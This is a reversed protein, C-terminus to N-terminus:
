PGYTQALYDILVAKEEDNLEAGYGVMRTVTDDWQEQTYQAAEVQRLSHCVTCREQLLAEAEISVADEAPEETPAETPAETPEAPPETAAEVAAETPAQTPEPAAETPEPAMETPEAVVETPEPAVPEAPAGGCASLAAAAVWMLVFL